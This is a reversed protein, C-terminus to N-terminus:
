GHLHAPRGSAAQPAAHPSQQAQHALFRKAEHQGTSSQGHATPRPLSTACTAYNAIPALASRDYRVGRLTCARTHDAPAICHNTWHATLLCSEAKRGQVMSAHTIHKPQRAHCRQKVNSRLGTM